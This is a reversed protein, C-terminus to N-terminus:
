WISTMLNSIDNFLAFVMLCILLVMGVQQAIEMKRLSVPAGRLAEVSFFLLHGGDLVPVPLLNLLFLNISIIAMIKMFPSLGLEFSQSAVRGITIVGAINKPSVENKVLRVLSMVTMSTWNATEKLGRSLARVPNTFRQTIPPAAVSAVVPVIGVTFRQENQHKENMVDSMEPSIEFSKRVGEHAVTFKLPPTGSKYNKVVNLVQDWELIPKDNIALIKDGKVLGAVAAPSKDKVAMLYSDSPEIGLQTMLSSGAKPQWPSITIVHENESGPRDCAQVKIKLERAQATRKLVPEVQRWYEVKNNNIAMIMDCTKLGARGALSTGSPVGVVAARSLYGFGEITGVQHRVSFINENTSLAPTAVVEAKQDSNERQVSFSLRQGASQEVKRQIEEWALVSDSDLTLIKDGSRFGAAYAASNEPVDGVVPAPVKEGVYAVGVFLVAAFVLNMVPGALVIAIRPWVPQHLFSYRKEAEPIEASPDDGFMKVYGGLPIISLCYTTDGRVIKLIKKGFGLSFVEVRVGFFKAVLFHGLEHIFILLGLLIFFPGIFSFGKHLGSLILEMGDIM